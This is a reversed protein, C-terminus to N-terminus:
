KQGFPSNIVILTPEVKEKLRKLVKNKLWEVNRQKKNESAEIWTAAMDQTVENLPTFTSTADMEILTVGTWNEKFSTGNVDIYEGHLSFAIKTVVNDQDKLSPVIHIQSIEWTYNIDNINM